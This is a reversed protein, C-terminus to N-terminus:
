TVVGCRVTVLRHAHFNQRWGFTAYLDAFRRRQGLIIRGRFRWDGCEVPMIDIVQSGRFGRTTCRGTGWLAFDIRAIEGLSGGSHVVLDEVYIGVIKSSQDVEGREAVAIATGVSM